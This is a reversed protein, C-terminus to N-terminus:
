ANKVQLYHVVDCELSVAGPNGWINTANKYQGTATISAVGYILYNMAGPSRFYKTPDIFPLQYLNAEVNNNQLQFFQSFVNSCTLVVGDEDTVIFQAVQPAYDERFSWVNADTDATLLKFMGVNELTLPFIAMEDNGFPCQALTNRFSPLKRQFTLEPSFIQIYEIPILTPTSDSILNYSLGIISSLDISVPRNSRPNNSVNALWSPLWLKARNNGGAIAIYDSQSSIIGRNVDLPDWNCEVGFGHVRHAKGISPCPFLRIGLPVTTASDIDTYTGSLRFGQSASYRFQFAIDPFILSLDVPILNDGNCIRVDTNLACEVDAAYSGAQPPQYPMGNDENGDFKTYATYPKHYIVYHSNLYDPTGLTDNAPYWLGVNPAYISTPKFLDFYLACTEGTHAYIPQCWKFASYTIIDGKIASSFTATFSYPSENQGRGKSDVLLGSISPPLDIVPKTLDTASM